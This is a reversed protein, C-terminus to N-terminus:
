GNRVIRFKCDPNAGRRCVSVEGLEWTDYFKAGDVIAATHGNKALVSLCRTEGNLILKWAYDAPESNDDLVARIRISERSKSIWVIEGIRLKEPRTPLGKSGALRGHESLLPIPFRINCGMSSLSTQNSITPTSAIGEIMRSGSRQIWLTEIGGDRHIRVKPGDYKQEVAAYSPKCYKSSSPM